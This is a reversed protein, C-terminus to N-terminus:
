PSHSELELKRPMSLTNMNERAGAFSPTESFFFKFPQRGQWLSPAPGLATDERGEGVCLNPPLSTTRM